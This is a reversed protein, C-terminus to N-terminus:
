YKAPILNDKFNIKPKETELFLSLEKFDLKFKIDNLELDVNKSQSAKDIIFTNFKNTEIGVTSLITIFFLILLIIIFIFNFIIKKM